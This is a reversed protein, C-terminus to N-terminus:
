SAPSVAIPDSAPFTERLAEDLREDLGPRPPESPVTPKAPQPRDGVQGSAQRPRVTPAHRPQSSVPQRPPAPKDDEFLAVSGLFEELEFVKENEAKRRAFWALTIM